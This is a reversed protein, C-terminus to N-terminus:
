IIKPLKLLGIFVFSYASLLFMTTLLVKYMAGQMLPRAHYLVVCFMPIMPFLYRGQTQYDNTWSHYLSAAILASACSIFFAFLLNGSVGGRFVLTIGVLLFLVIGVPRVTNYYSDVASVTFYGYVGFASRYTQEFWRDVVIIKELTDGRAKRYLFPHKEELPTSPKYLPDALQEQVNAKKAAMDIGNVAYNAGIRLGALILGICVIIVAKKCYQRRLEPEVQFFVKWALYGAIFLIYFLYNKKLLFLPAALLGLFLLPLAQKKQTTGLLCSNLMSHPLAFQCAVIFAVVLGFADSNCYSFLYWIQPSILLPVAMIRAGPSQLIYLLLLFFLLVNFARLSLYEPLHFSQLLNSLKGTFFYSIEHGNLRSVGYVSYTHHIAPDDVAPPLFNDKYYEAADLHVYEDPHVNEVTIAAMVVILAFATVFFLPIFNKERRFTETCFFFLFVFSFIAVIHTFLVWVRSPGEHLNVALELQPDNGTSSIHFGDGAWQSSGIHFLPQLQKFESKKTFQLSQKGKQSIQLSKIIVEGEYMHPDIRLREIKRLDTLYFSYQQKEPTLRVRARRWKSYGNGEEAWYMNFWTKQPVQIELEVFARNEFFHLYLFSLLFGLLLPFKWSISLFPTSTIEQKGQLIMDNISLVCNTLRKVNLCM